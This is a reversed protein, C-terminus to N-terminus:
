SISNMVGRGDKLVISATEVYLRVLDYSGVPIDIEPLSATIGNRLELLKFNIPQESIVIYTSDDTGDKQRVEIKDITVTASEVFDAPFPADTVKVLLSGSDQPENTTECGTIVFMISIVFYISLTIFKFNKM